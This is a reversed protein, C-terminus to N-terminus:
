PMKSPKTPAPKAKPGKSPPAIKLTLQKSQEQNYATRFHASKQWELDPSEFRRKKEVSNTKQSATKQSIENQVLYSTVVLNTLFGALFAKPNGFFVIKKYKKSLFHVFNEPIWKCGLGISFFFSKLSLTKMPQKRSIRVMPVNHPMKSVQRSAYKDVTTLPEFNLFM